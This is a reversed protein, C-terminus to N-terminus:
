APEDSTIGAGQDLFAAMSAPTVIPTGADDLQLMLAAHHAEAIREAKERQRSRHIKVAEAALVRGNLVDAYLDDPLAYLDAALTRFAEADRSLTTM